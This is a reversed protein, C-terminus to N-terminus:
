ANRSRRDIDTSTAAYSSEAAVAAAEARTRVGLKEFIHRVHVKVTVDSIFLRRAIERNTLGQAVLGLVEFERKSLRRAIANAPKVAAGIASALETDDARALVFEVQPRLDDQRYVKSAFDPFGRFACMLNDLNGLEFAQSFAHRAAKLSQEPEAM